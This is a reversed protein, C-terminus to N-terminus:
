FRMRGRLAPRILDFRNEAQVFDQWNLTEDSVAGCSPEIGGDTVNVNSHVEDVSAADALSNPPSAEDSEPEDLPQAAEVAPVEDESDLAMALEEEPDTVEEIEPLEEILEGNSDASFEEIQQGFVSDTLSPEGKQPSVVEADAVAELDMASDLTPETLEIVEIEDLGDPDVQVLMFACRSRSPFASPELEASDLELVPM